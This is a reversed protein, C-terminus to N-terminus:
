PLRRRVLQEELVRSQANTRYLIAIQRYAIGTGILRDIERIVFQAEDTENGAVVGTIPDGKRNATWLEKAHRKTLGAEIAQAAVLITQTSRYNQELRVTTCESFDQEFQLIYRVDAGRWGYIAQSDDGVVTLNRHDGAIAKVLRYQAENVDQYEDVLVHRYRNAYRQRVDPFNELLQLMLNILDGFDVANAAELADQYRRYLTAVATEFPNHSESASAAQAPSVLRDKLRGIASLVANPSVLKPNLGAEAFQRKLVRLQDDTDYITFNRDYRRGLLEIDSRLFRACLGHFTGMRVQRAQDEGTLETVRHTLERAAKNTFTVALIQWPPIQRERIIYAIRYAIVRTKGSGAGALILLPGDGHTVADMQPPNLQTALFQRIDPSPAPAPTPEYTREM